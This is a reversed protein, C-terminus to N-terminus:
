EGDRRAHACTPLLTPLPNAPPPRSQMAADVCRHIVGQEHLYGIASATQQLIRARLQVSPPKPGHLLEHVTGGSAFEHVMAPIGKHMFTGLFKCIHAHNLGRIIRTQKIFRRLVDTEKALDLKNLVKVAVLQSGNWTAKHVDGQADLKHRFVIKDFREDSWEDLPTAGVPATHPTLPTVPEYSTLSASPCDTTGVAGGEWQSLDLYSDLEPLLTSSQLYLEVDDLHDLAAQDPQADYATSKWMKARSGGADEKGAETSAGLTADRIIKDM